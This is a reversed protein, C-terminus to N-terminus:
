DYGLRFGQVTSGDEAQGKFRSDGLNGLPIHYLKGGQIPQGSRDFMQELWCSVSVPLLEAACRLEAYGFSEPSTTNLRRIASTGFRRTAPNYSGRIFGIRQVYYSPDDGQWPEDLGPFTLPSTPDFNHNFERFVLIWPGAMDPVPYDSIGSFHAPAASGYTLPWITTWESEDVRYRALNRQLFEIEVTGASQAPQPAVYECAICAGGSFELAQASLRWSVQPDDPAAQLAGSILYWRASGDEAYGFLGGGLIGRQVEFMLGTGPREPHSWVGTEPYALQTFEPCDPCPIEVQARANLSAFCTVIVFLTVIFNM